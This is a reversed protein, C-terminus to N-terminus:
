PGSSAWSLATARPPVKGSVPVPHRERRLDGPRSYRAVRDGRRWVVAAPNPEGPCGTSEESGRGRIVGHRRRASVGVPGHQHEGAGGGPPGGAGPRDPRTLGELWEGYRVGPPRTDHGEFAALFVGEVVDMVDMRKGMRAQVEPYREVWRGARPRLCDEYPTIAARYAPYDGAAAAADLAAADIPVDPILEQRTGVEAKQREPVRGLADKYAKVNEVVSDVCRDFAAHLVPDHDSCMITEGPLLLSLKVVFENSRDKREIVVRLDHVPFNEVQLALTDLGDLMKDYEADDPRCEHADFYVLLRGRVPQNAREAM